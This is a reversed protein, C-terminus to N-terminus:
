SSGFFNAASVWVAWHSALAGTESGCSSRLLFVGMNFVCLALLLLLLLPIILKYHTLMCLEDSLMFMATSVSEHRGSLTHTNHKWDRTMGSFNWCMRRTRFVFMSPLLFIAKAMVAMFTFDWRHKMSWKRCTVLICKLINTAWNNNLTETTHWVNMMVSVQRDKQRDPRLTNASTVGMNDQPLGVDVEVLPSSLQSILLHPSGATQLSVTVPYHRFSINHSKLFDQITHISSTFWSSQLDQVSDTQLGASKFVDVSPESLTYVQAPINQQLECHESQFSWNYLDQKNEELQM